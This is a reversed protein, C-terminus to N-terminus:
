VGKDLVQIKALVKAKEVRICSRAAGSDVVNSM